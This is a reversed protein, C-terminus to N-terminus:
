WMVADKMTHATGCDIDATIVNRLTLFRTIYDPLHKAVNESMDLRTQGREDSKSGFRPKRSTYYDSSDKSLREM